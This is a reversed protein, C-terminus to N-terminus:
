LGASVPKTKVGRTELVNDEPSTARMWSPNFLEYM